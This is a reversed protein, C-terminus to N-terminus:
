VMIAWLKLFVNLTICNFTKTRFPLNDSKSQSQIAAAPDSHWYCDALLMHQENYAWWNWKFLWARHREQTHRYLSTKGEVVTDTNPTGLVALPAYHFGKWKRNHLRSYTIQILWYSALLIVTHSESTLKNVFFMFHNNNLVQLLINESRGQCM